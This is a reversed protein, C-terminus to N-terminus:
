NKGSFIRNVGFIYSSLNLKDLLRASVICGSLAILTVLLAHLVGSPEILIFYYSFPKMIVIFLAHLVLIILTNRGIWAFNDTIINKNNRLVSWLTGLLLINWLFETPSSTFFIGGGGLMDIIIFTFILYLMPKVSFHFGDKYLQKITLGLFFYLGGRFEILNIEAAIWLFLLLFILFLGLKNEAYFFDNVLYSAFLGLLQMVILSHLFWYGGIPHIIITNLFSKIDVPATNTTQIGLYSAVTLGLIYLSIFFVYPVAIKRILKNIRMMFDSDFSFFFGSLIFFIPMHFTYIFTKISALAESAGGLYTIHGFVMLTICIGKIADPAVDREFM